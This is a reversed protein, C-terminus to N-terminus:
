GHHQGPPSYLQDEVGGMWAPFQIVKSDARFKLGAMELIPNNVTIVVHLANLM